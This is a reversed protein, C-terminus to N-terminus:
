QAPSGNAASSQVPEASPPGRRAGDVFPLGPFELAYIVPGTNCQGSSGNSYAAARMAGARAAIDSLTATPSSKGESAASAPAPTQGSAAPAEATGAATALAAADPAPIAPLTLDPAINQGSLDFAGAYVIEGPGVDFAPAGLCLSLAIRSTALSDIRWRGPTVRFIMLAVGNALIREGKGDADASQVGLGLTNGAAGNIRLVILSADNPLTTADAATLPAVMAAGSAAAAEVRAQEDTVARQHTREVEAELRRARSQESTESSLSRNSRPPRRYDAAFSEGPLAMSSLSTPTAGGTAAQVAGPNLAENGFSRTSLGTPSEAAILPQMRGALEAQNLRALASGANDDLRVVRWGLAVMCNDYNARTALEQQQQAAQMQMLGLVLTAGIAGAPSYTSYYGPNSSMAGLFDPGRYPAREAIAASDFCFELDHRHEELTAGPRNYYTYGLTPTALQPGSPTQGQAAGAFAVIAVLAAAGKLIARM